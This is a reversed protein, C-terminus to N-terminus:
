LILFNFVDLIDFIKVQMEKAKVSEEVLNEITESLVQSINPIFDLTRSKILFAIILLIQLSFHM